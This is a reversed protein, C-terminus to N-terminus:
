AGAVLLAATSVAGVSLWEKWGWGGGWTSTVGTLNEGAKSAHVAAPNGFLPLGRMWDDHIISDNEVNVPSVLPNRRRPVGVRQRDGGGVIEDQIDEVYTGM